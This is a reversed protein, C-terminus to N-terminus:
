PRTTRVVEGRLRALRRALAADVQITAEVQSARDYHENVVQASIGMMGAALGPHSPLRLTATTALAHRFRHPGFGQGFRKRTLKWVRLQIGAATWPKGYHTIWVADHSQGQLLAPRAIALYHRVYPALVEPLNFHDRKNTKVQWPKLEIRYRESRLILEEGVRILTMSRLRRGRAALLALLLGDRFAVPSAADDMMDVAWDFMVKSDPVLLARKRKPLIAYISPGDPRRIWSVDAGPALIKMAMTLECFRGIITYDANGARRLAHFYARLRRRTVRALPPELPDLWDRSDLFCLWRGYGKCTKHLSDPRLSGGYHCWPQDYPDGPACNCVWIARDQEPWEALKWCRVPTDTAIM